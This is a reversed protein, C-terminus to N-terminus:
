AKQPAANARTKLRMGAVYIIGSLLLSQVAPIGMPWIYQTVYGALAGILFAMTATWNWGKKDTWERKSVLFFDAFMVGAIAPYTVGMVILFNLFYKLIGFLALTIGTLAGAVTLWRRGTESDINFMNAIELGISYSAVLQSTWLALWLILFGWFPFGLRQMVRIIDADGVGVSMVAGTTFFILGIVVIGLPILAQDKIRPRSYRTYDSAILWQAVNAGLVLSIGGLLTLSPKPNWSIIRDWGTNRLAYIVGATVLIIGGPVALYDTWKMSNYGIVAPLAFLLGAMLTLIAWAIWQQQYNIGLLACIANGAVATNVGFWGINLVLLASGIVFRAQLSGFSSRAIVPSPRGTKAGLYGQLGNGIWQIIVLGILLILLIKALSFSGALAAGLMMVPVAFELGAFITAPVIWHKRESLPVESLVPEHGLIGKSEANEEPHVKKGEHM